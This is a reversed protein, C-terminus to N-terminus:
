QALAKKINSEIDQESTLGLQAAVITGKRNVFFSTPLEDLGGYPTSLSDGNILVPYPMKEQQVFKAIASKNKAWGAKDDPKLDDGEADIGLIEFGQGAYKNRLEVLWPTEIKCPACWTAWFNILVAKGRYNALSVKKGNMDELAFAPAPKGKLPSVYTAAGGAPDAVLEGRAATALLREAAQQRYEWNAWGAWAFTALTFLTVCLVLTNRRM